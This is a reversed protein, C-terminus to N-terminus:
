GAAPLSARGAAARHGRGRAGSRGGRVGGDRECLRHRRARRDVGHHHGSAARCGRRLHPPDEVPRARVADGPHRGRVEPGGRRRRVRHRRGGRRGAPRGDRPGDAVPRGPRPRLGGPATGLGAPPRHVAGATVAPGGRSVGSGSRGAVLHAGCPLQRSRPGDAGRWSPDVGRLRAPGAPRALQRGRGGAPGSACERVRDRRLRRGAPGVRTRHRDPHRVGRRRDPPLGGLDRRRGLRERLALGGADPAEQAPGSGTTRGPAASRISRQAFLWPVLSLEAVPEGRVDHVVELNRSRYPGGTGLADLAPPASSSARM